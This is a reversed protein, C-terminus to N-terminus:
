ATERGRRGLLDRVHEVVRKLESSVQLTAARIAEPTRAKLKEELASAEGALGPACFTSASGKLGHALAALGDYDQAADLEELIDLRKELERGFSRLASSLDGGPLGRELDAIAREDLAPAPNTSEKM